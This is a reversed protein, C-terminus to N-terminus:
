RNEDLNKRDHRDGAGRTSLAIPRLAQGAGVGILGIHVMLTQRCPSSGEGQSGSVSPTIGARARRKLRKYGTKGM